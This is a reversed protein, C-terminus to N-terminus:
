AYVKPSYFDLNVENSSDFLPYVVRVEPELLHVIKTEEDLKLRWKQNEYDLEDCLHDITMSVLYPAMAIFFLEHQGWKDFYNFDYRIIEDNEEKEVSFGLLGGIVDEIDHISDEYEEPVWSFWYSRQEGGGFGGGRKLDNRKNLDRVAQVAKEVNEKRIKLEGYINIYTGM